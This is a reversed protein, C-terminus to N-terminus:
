PWLGLHRGLAMAVLMAAMVLAALALTRVAEAHSM